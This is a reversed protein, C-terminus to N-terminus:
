FLNTLYDTLSNMYNLGTLWIVSRYGKHFRESSMKQWVDLGAGTERFLLFGASASASILLFDDTLSMGLKAGIFGGAITLYPM